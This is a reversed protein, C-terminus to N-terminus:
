IDKGLANLIARFFLAREAKLLLDSADAITLMPNSTVLIDGEENYLVLILQSADIDLIDPFSDILELIMDKVKSTKNGDIKRLEIVNNNKKEM